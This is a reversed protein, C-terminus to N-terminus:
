RSGATPSPGRSSRCHRRSACRAVLQLAREEEHTDIAIIPFRSAILVELEHEDKM